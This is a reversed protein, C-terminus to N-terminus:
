LAGYVLQRVETTLRHHDTIEGALASASFLALAAALLGRLSRTHKNAM